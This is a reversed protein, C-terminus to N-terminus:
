LEKISKATFTSFIISAKFNTSSIYFSLIAGSLKVYEIIKVPKFSLLELSFNTKIQKSLILFTIRASSIM